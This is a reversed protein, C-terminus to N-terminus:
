WRPDGPEIIQNASGLVFVGYRPYPRTALVTSDPHQSVYRRAAEEPTAGEWVVARGSALKLEYQM